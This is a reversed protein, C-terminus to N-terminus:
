MSFGNTVLRDYVPKGLWRQQMLFISESRGERTAVIESGDSSYASASRVFYSDRLGSSRVAVCLVALAVVAALIRRRDPTRPTVLAIGGYVMAVILFATEVGVIPLLVFAAVLPGCMAGFTNALTLLAAGRTSNQLQQEIATGTLTFFIGSLF